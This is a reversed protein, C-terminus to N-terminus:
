RRPEDSMQDSTKASGDESASVVKLATGPPPSNTAEFTAFGVPGVRRFSAQEGREKIDGVILDNLLASLHKRAPHWWAGDEDTEYNEGSNCLGRGDATFEAKQSRLQERNAVSIHRHRDNEEDRSRFPGLAEDGLEACSWPEGAGRLTEWAYGLWGADVRVKNGHGDDVVYGEPHFLCEYQRDLEYTGRDVRWLRFDDFFRTLLASAPDAGGVRFGSEELKAHIERFHMPGGHEALVDIVADARPPEPVAPDTPSDAALLQKMARLQAAIRDRAAQEDAVRQDAITLVENLREYEAAVKQLFGGELGLSTTTPQYDDTM